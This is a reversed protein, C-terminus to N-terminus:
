PASSSSTSNGLYIVPKKTGTVPLKNNQLQVNKVPGRVMDDQRYVSGVVISAFSPSNAGVMDNKIIANNDDEVIVQALTNGTITNQTIQNGSSYDPFYTQGHIDRGADSCVTPTKSYVRRMFSNSLGQRSAIWIGVGLSSAGTNGVEANLESQTLTMDKSGSGKQNRVINRVIVNNDSHQYRTVGGGEGCNKYLAIGIAGNEEILNRELLNKASSDIAVGVNHNRSIVSTIVRNAQSERELYIGNGNDHVNADEILWNRAYENVFIGDSVINSVEVNHLSVDSTAFNYRKERGGLAQDLDTPGLHQPSSNSYEGFAMCTSASPTPKMWLRRQLFIGFRFNTVKCNSIAAGSADADPFRSQDGSLESKSCVEQSSAIGIAQGRSEPETQLGKGDITGNNCDLSLNSGSFVVQKAIHCNAPQLRINRDVVGNWDGCNVNEYVIDPIAFSGSGALEANGSNDKASSLAYVYVKRGAFRIADRPSLQIRFAHGENGKTCQTTGLGEGPQNAHAGLLAVGESAPKGFTARVELTQDSNSQCAWGRVTLAGQNGKDIGEIAGTITAAASCVAPSAALLIFSTKLIKM